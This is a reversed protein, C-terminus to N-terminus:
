IKKRALWMMGFTLMGNIPLLEYGFKYGGLFQPIYLEVLWTLFPSLLCIFPTLQDKIQVKTFIGFAFMGLLPGYTYTAMKLVADIVSSDSSNKFIIISILLLFSFGIHVLNKTSNIKKEEWKEVKLFDVCFSTTLSALASDASAYSSATIGVLFSLGALIGLHSLALTPFLQDTKEPIAIEKEQAFVYLLAGMTLFLLNVLVLVVSFWFMNKQADNLNKCTLNKQMLDQDLGTMAITIFFGGIFQKGFFMPSKFDNLVFMKLYGGSNIREFVGTLNLNLQNGIVFTTTVLSTILFFTQFTDTWVITKIGGKFTYVWILIITFLVTAEFPVNLQNFLFLQLVSAALFLRLSAGILRSILFIGSGSLKSMAGFRTELYGYISILKLRYYLPLLVLAVVLYGALYGLVIQFYTFQTLGVKGPVSIFTAGSLSTGIMGFAVLPWPSSKHATFFTNSDANRSTFYAITILMLFYVGLVTFVLGTTM